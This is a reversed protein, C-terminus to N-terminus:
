SGRVPVAGTFPEIPTPKTITAAIAVAIPPPTPQWSPLPSPAASMVSTSRKGGASRTGGTSRTGGGFQPFITNQASPQRPPPPMGPTPPPPPPSMLPALGIPQTSPQPCFAGGASTVDASASIT